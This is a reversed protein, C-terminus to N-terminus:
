TPDNSNLSRAVALLKDFEAVLIGSCENLEELVAHMEQYSSHAQAPLFEAIESHRSLLSQHAFNNRHEKLKNLRKHLEAHENLKQFIHLLRELPFNQIDEYRHKFPLSDGVKRRIIGYACGLYLKLTLELAQFGALVKFATQDQENMSDNM